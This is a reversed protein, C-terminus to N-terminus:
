VLFVLNTVMRFDILICFDIINRCVLLSRDLVYILFVIGNVIADFLIFHKPIFKVFSTCSECM